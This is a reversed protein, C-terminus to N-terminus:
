RRVTRRRRSLYLFAMGAILLAVGVGIFAITNTGTLALGGGGGSAAKEANDQAPPPAQAANAGGAPSEEAASETAPTTPRAAGAAPKQPAPKQGAPEQGNDPQEPRDPEQEPADGGPQGAPPQQGGPNDAPPQENGPQEAPPQENGPNDAPPQEGGPNGGAPGENGPDDAPPQEGGPEEAPPEENGPEEAPPEEAPPEEAPPEEAPPEEAPPRVLIRVSDLAPIQNARVMMPIRHSGDGAWSSCQALGATPLGPVEIIVSDPEDGGKGDETAVFFAPVPAPDVAESTSTLMRCATHFHGRVLGEETLLSSELYYGGRGAPLFRDRVLNRTSVVLRFPQGARVTRPAQTILLTPNQEASGVEGFATAVCRGGDQFGTHAPLDSAECDDGLANLGGGPAAGGPTGSPTAPATSAPCKEASAPPSAEGAGPTESAGAGPSESGGAAPPPSGPECGPAAQRTEANSIQTVGVLGGFVALAAAVALLRRRQGSGTSARGRHSRRM